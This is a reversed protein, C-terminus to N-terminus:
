GESVVVRVGQAVSIVIGILNLSPLAVGPSRSPTPRQM